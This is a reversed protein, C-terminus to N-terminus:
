HGQAIHSVPQTTPKQAAKSEAPQAAPKPSAKAAKPAKHPEVAETKLLKEQDPHSGLWRITGAEIDYVAGVIQTKGSEVCERLIASSKLLTEIGLWVNQEIAPPVLDTGHLDPHLSRAKDVAPQIKSALKPLHGHVKAATAVATVAGCKTHGLVVLVPTGLHEVGYEASAIQDDGCVNGAVRIVFLDGIGEDFVVELPVRSDSCSLITAYPQQGNASTEKRRDANAHPHILKGSTYRINGDKLWKLGLEPDVKPSGTASVMATPFGASLTALLVVAILRKM